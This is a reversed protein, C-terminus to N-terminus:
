HSDHVDLAGRAQVWAGELGEHRRGNTIQRSRRQAADFAPGRRITGDLRAGPFSRGARERACDDIRLEAMEHATVRRKDSLVTAAELEPGAVGRVKRGARNAQPCNVFRQALRVANPASGASPPLSKKLAVCARMGRMSM